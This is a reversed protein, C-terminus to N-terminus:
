KLANMEVAQMDKFEKNEGAMGWLFAYNTTGVGSHISWSPSIVAEENRVVIHRTEDEEGMFHMLLADKPMKCYFYTEMRRLHTHCPMTNWVNCPDLVTMGMLLQCSELVNPHIYQFITRKNSEKNSGLEVKIAEQFSVKKTPYKKHAPVTVLYFRAPNKQEISKFDINKIDKGIYIVDDLDLEYEDNDIIILGKGGINLVGMERRQMFYETGTEQGNSINLTENIPFCGGVIMRDDYAYTMNIKNEEFLNSVLFSNRLEETSMKKCEKPSVAYRIDM